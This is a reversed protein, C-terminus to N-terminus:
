LWGLIRLGQQGNRKQQVLVRDHDHFTLLLAGPSAHREFVGDVISEEGIWPGAFLGDHVADERPVSARAGEQQSEVVVVPYENLVLM